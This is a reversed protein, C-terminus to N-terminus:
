LRASASSYSIQRWSQCLNRLMTCSVLAGPLVSISVQKELRREFEAKIAMMCLPEGPSDVQQGEGELKGGVMTGAKNVSQQDGCLTGVAAVAGGAKLAALTSSPATVAAPSAGQQVPRAGAGVLASLSPAAPSPAAPVSKPVSATEAASDSLSMDIILQPGSCQDQMSSKPVNAYRLNFVEPYVSMMQALHSAQRICMFRHQAISVYLHQYAPNLICDVSGHPPM